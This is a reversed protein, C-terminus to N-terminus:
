VELVAVIRLTRPEVVIIEDAYVFFMYGRWSPEIEIITAPLPAIRVTRPVVVGVKVDFNVNTVKPGTNIVTNRITTKQEVTLSVNKQNMPREAAGQQQKGGSPQQASKDQKTGGSSPQQASKDQKTGGQTPATESQKGGGPQAPAQTERQQQTGPQGNPREQTAKQNPTTREQAGKKGSPSEPTAAPAERTIPAAAGGPKANITAGGQAAGGGQPAAGGPNGGQSLALTSGAALAIAAVSVLLAQKM